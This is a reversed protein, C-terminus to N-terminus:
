HVELDTETEFLNVWGKHKLKAKFDDPYLIEALIKTSDLLRPGPRNFYHHGDAIFVQRNKVADLTAWGDKGTMIDIDALTQDITFGCPMIIMKAPNAALVDPWAIPKAHKGTTGFMPEANVAGVLEPLWNGTALLPDMWEVCFVENSATTSNCKNTISKMKKTFRASLNMGGITDGVTSAIEVFSERVDDLNQPSLSLVVPQYDLAEAVAQEIQSFEVACVECHDQTIIIDPKLSQLMEYDVQYISLGDSILRKIDRDIHQTSSHKLQEDPKTCVPLSQVDVPFDCEHSRGVLKSGYGLASVIETAAPLLSLIRM